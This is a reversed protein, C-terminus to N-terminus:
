GLTQFIVRAVQFENNLRYDPALLICLARALQPVRYKQIAPAMVEGVLPRGTRFARCHLFLVTIVPVALSTYRGAHPPM